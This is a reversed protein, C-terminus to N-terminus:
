IKSVAPIANRSKKRSAEAHARAKEKQLGSDATSIDNYIADGIETCAEDKEHKSNGPLYDNFEDSIRNYAKRIIAIAENAARFEGARKTSMKGKKKSEKNQESVVSQLIRFDEDTGIFQVSLGDPTSNHYQNLEHIIDEVCNSFVCDQNQYKLLGSNEALDQWTDGADLSIHFRIHNQYPDYLIKVIKKAM